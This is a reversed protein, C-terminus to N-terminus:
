KRVLEVDKPAVDRWVGGIRVRYGIINDAPPYGCTRAIAEYGTGIGPTKIIRVQVPPSWEELEDVLEGAMLVTVIKETM